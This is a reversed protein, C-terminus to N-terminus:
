RLVFRRPPPVQLWPAAVGAPLVAFHAVLDTGVFAPSAPIPWAVSQQAFYVGPFLAYSGLDFYVRLTPTLSAPAPATYGLAFVGALGAPLDAQFVVTTGVQPDAPAITMSGLQPAVLANAQTVHAGANAAFSDVLQLPAAASGQLSGGVFCSQAVAIPGSGLTSVACGDFRSETVALAQTPSAALTVPGNKCRANRLELPQPAAGCGLQVSGEATLESVEGFVANGADGLALAIGGAAARLDWGRLIAWTAGIPHGVIQACDASRVRVHDGEVYVQRGSPVSLRTVLIGRTSADVHVRDFTFRSFGGAGLTAWFGWVAGVIEVDVLEYIGSRGAPAEQAQFALPVNVFRCRDLIARGPANPIAGTVNVGFTAQGEFRVNQLSLGAQGSVDTQTVDIGYPGGVLAVDQLSFSNAPVRLGHAIGPGSFDFVVQDGFGKILLGFPTDVIPALDQQITIVPTNAADIDIWTVDSTNGTGPILSLQAAEAASLQSPLLTGNHLLIAEHLSLLGDGLMGHSLPDNVFAIAHFSPASSPGVGGVALAAVAGLLQAVILPM